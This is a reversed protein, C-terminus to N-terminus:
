TYRFQVPSSYAKWELKKSRIYSDLVYLIALKQSALFRTRAYKQLRRIAPRHVNWLALLDQLEESPRYIDPLDGLSFRFSGKSSTTFESQIGREQLFHRLLKKNVGKNYDYMSEQGLSQFFDVMQKTLYPYRLSIRPDLQAALVGKRICCDLDYIGGRILARAFEPQTRFDRFVADVDSSFSEARVAFGVGSFQRQAAERSLSASLYHLHNVGYFMSTTSEHINAIRPLRILYKERKPPISGMYVDNGMGDIILARKRHDNGLTRSVEQVARVYAFFGVDANPICISGMREQLFSHVQHMDDTLEIYDKQFKDALRRTEFSEDERGRNTCHILTYKCNLASLAWALSLSDKGASVMLFINSHGSVVRAVTELLLREFSATKNEDSADAENKRAGSFQRICRVFTTGDDDIADSEFASYVNLYSRGHRIGYPAPLFGLRLFQQVGEKNLAASETHLVENINIATM